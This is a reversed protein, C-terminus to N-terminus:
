PASNKGDRTPDSPMVLVERIPRHEPHAQIRRSRDPDRTTLVRGVKGWARRLAQHGAAARERRAVRAAELLIQPCESCQAARATSPTHKFEEPDTLIARRSCGVSRTRRVGRTPGPLAASCGTPAESPAAAPWRASRGRRGPQGPPGPWMFPETLPRPKAGVGIEM